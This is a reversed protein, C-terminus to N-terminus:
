LSGSAMNEIKERLIRNEESLKLNSIDLEIARELLDFDSNPYETYYYVRIKNVARKLKYTNKLM